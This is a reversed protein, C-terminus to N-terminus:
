SNQFDPFVKGPSLTGVEYYFSVEPKPQEVGTKPM